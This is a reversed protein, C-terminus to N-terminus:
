RRMRILAGRLDSTLNWAAGAKAVAETDGSYLIIWQLHESIHHVATEADSLILAGREIMRLQAIGLLAAAPRLRYERVSSVSTEGNM